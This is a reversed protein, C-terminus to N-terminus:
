FNGAGMAAGGRQRRLQRLEARQEPTLMMFLRRREGRDLPRVLAIRERWSLAAWGAAIRALDAEPVAPRGAAQPAGEGASQRRESRIQQVREVLAAREPRAAAREPSPRRDTDRLAEPVAIGRAEARAIRRDIRAALAQALRERRPDELPPAAATAEAGAALPTKGPSPQPQPAVRMPGLGPVAAAVREVMQGVPELDVGVRKFLGTAAAAATAGVVLFAAGGLAAHRGRRWPGLGQVMARRLRPLAPAQRSQAAAVVRDAFGPSLPPPDLRALAEALAPDAARMTERTM